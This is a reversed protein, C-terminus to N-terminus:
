CIIIGFTYDLDISPTDEVEFGEELLCAALAAKGIDDSCIRDALEEVDIVASIKLIHADNVINVTIGGGSPNATGIIQLELYDATDDEDVKVKGDNIAFLGNERIILGNEVDPSVIVDAKPKHGAPGGATWEISETDVPLFPINFSNCILDDIVELIEKLTTGNNIGLCTLQSPQDTEFNYIICDADIKQGCRTDDACQDCFPQASECNCRLYDPQGCISCM